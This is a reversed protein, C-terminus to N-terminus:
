LDVSSLVVSLILEAAATLMSFQKKVPVCVNNAPPAIFIKAQPKRMFVKMRQSSMRLPLCEVPIYIM